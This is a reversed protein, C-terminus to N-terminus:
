GIKKAGKQLLASFINVLITKICMGSAELAGFLWQTQDYEFCLQVIHFTKSERLVLWPSIKPM